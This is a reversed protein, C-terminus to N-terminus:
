KSTGRGKRRAVDKYRAKVLAKLASESEQMANLLYPNKAHHAAAYRVIGDPSNKGKIRTKGGFTVSATIRTGVAGANKAHVVNNGSDYLAGTDVGVNKKANKLVLSGAQQVIDITGDHVDKTWRDFNQMIRHLDNNVNRSGKAM